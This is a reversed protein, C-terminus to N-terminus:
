SICARSADSFMAWATAMFGAIFAIVTTVAPVASAAVISRKALLLFVIWGVVGVSGAVTAAILVVQATPSM